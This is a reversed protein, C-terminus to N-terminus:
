NKILKQETSNLQPLDEESVEIFVKKTLSKIIFFVFISLICYILFLYLGILIKSETVIGTNMNSLSLYALFTAVVFVDAMSFKGIYSVTNVFFKKNRMNKSLLFLLSFALKLVPFVFSFLLIAIGVIYNQADFLIYILDSISKCQYFAYMKGDIKQSLDIKTEPLWEGIYPIDNLNLEDAKLDVGNLYASMELMPTTVGLILFVFSIALISIGIHKLHIAKAKLLLFSLLLYILSIAGLFVGFQWGRKEADNAKNLMVGSSMATKNVESSFLYEKVDFLTENISLEKAYLNKLEKFEYMNKNLASGFFYASILYVLTILIFLFRKM